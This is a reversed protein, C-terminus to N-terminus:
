IIEQPCTSHRIWLAGVVGLRWIEKFPFRGKKIVPGPVFCTSFLCNSFSYHPFRQVWCQVAIEYKCTRQYASVKVATRLLLVKDNETVAVDNKKIWMIMIVNEWVKVSLVLTGSVHYPAKCTMENLGVSIVM